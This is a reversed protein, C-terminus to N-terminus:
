SLLAVHLFETEFFGFLVFFTPTLLIDEKQISPLSIMHGLPPSRDQLLPCTSQIFSHYSM